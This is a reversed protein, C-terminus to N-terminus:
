VTACAAMNWTLQATSKIKEDANNLAQHQADSLRCSLLLRGDTLLPRPTLFSSALRSTLTLTGKM